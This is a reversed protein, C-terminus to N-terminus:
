SLFREIVYRSIVNIDVFRHKQNNIRQRLEEVSNFDDGIFGIIYDIDGEYIGMDKLMKKSPSNIYYLMEINSMLKHDIISIMRNDVHECKMFFQIVQIRKYFDFEIYSNKLSIASKIVYNIDELSYSQMTENVITRINLRPVKKYTLKNILFTQLKM